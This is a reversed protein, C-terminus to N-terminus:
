EENGAYRESKPNQIQKSNRTEINSNRWRQCFREKDIVLLESGEDHTIQLQKGTETLKFNRFTQESLVKDGQMMDFIKAGRALNRAQFAMNDMAEILPVVNHKTIDIHEITERLFDSKKM